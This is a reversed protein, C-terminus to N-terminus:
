NEGKTIKKRTKGINRKNMLRNVIALFYSNYHMKRCITDTARARATISWTKQEAKKGRGEENM